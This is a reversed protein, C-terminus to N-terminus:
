KFKGVNWIVSHMADRCSCQIYYDLYSVSYLGYIYLTPLIWRYM